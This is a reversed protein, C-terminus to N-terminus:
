PAVCELGVVNTIRELFMAHAPFAAAFAADVVFTMLGSNCSAWVITVTAFPVPTFQSVDWGPGFFPGTGDYDFLMEVTMTDGVITGVGFAFFPLGFSDYSYWYLLVVGPSGGKGDKAVVEKLLIETNIGQGNFLSDYFSATWTEDIMAGGGGGVIAYDRKVTNNLENDENIVDFVDVEGFLSRDGPVAAWPSACSIFFDGNAPVGSLPGGCLLQGDVTIDADFDVKDAKAPGTTAFYLHAFLEQGAAPAGVANGEGDSETRFEVQQAIIDTGGGESVMFDVDIHNNTENTEGVLGSVDVDGSLTHPGLPGSWPDDCNFFFSGSIDIETLLDCELGADVRIEVDYVLTGKAAQSGSFFFYPWVQQGPGPNAVVIATDIDNTDGFLVDDAVLDTQGSITYNRTETNNNEDLEAVVDDIDLIGVLDRSGPAMPVPSPCNVAWRGEGLTVTGLCGFLGDFTIDIPVGVDVTTNLVDFLFFLYLDDGLAPNTVENSTDFDDGDRLQMEFAEFDLTMGKAQKNSRRPISKVQLQGSKEAVITTAPTARVAGKMRSAVTERVPANKRAAPGWTIGPLERSESLKAYLADRGGFKEFVEDPIRDLVRRSSFFSESGGMSKVTPCSLGVPTTIRELQMTHEEFVPGKAEFNLNFSFSLNDCDNAVITASAFDTPIFQASIWGPGFFPGTGDYDFLLEVQITDDVIDGVGFSFFPFGFPDYSYWYVLAVGAGGKAVGQEALIEINIGQGNFLPDGFSGTFARDILSEDGNGAGAGFFWNVDDNFFVLQQAAIVSNTADLQQAVVFTVGLSDDAIASDFDLVVDCEGGKSFGEYSYVTTYDDSTGPLHDLGMQAIGYMAVDDAAFTRVDTQSEVGWNMVSQTLTFPSQVMDGTFFSMVPSGNASYSDGIPLTGLSRSYGTLGTLVFPDNLPNHWNLNVDDGRLDDPTGALGDLGANLDFKGNVGERSFTAWVPDDLVGKEPADGGLDTHALGNAHGLEHLAVSEFDFVDVPVNSTDYRANLTTVKPDNLTQLARQVPGVMQNRHASSPDICVSIPLQGGDGDYGRAHSVSDDALGLVSGVYTGGTAGFSIALGAGVCFARGSRFVKNNKMTIEKSVLACQGPTM